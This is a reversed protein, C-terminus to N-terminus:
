LRPSSVILFHAGRGLHFRGPLSRPSCLRVSEPTEQSLSRGIISLSTGVQADHTLAAWGLLAFRFLLFENTRRSHSPGSPSTYAMASSHLFGRTGNRTRSIATLMTAPIRLGCSSYESVKQTSELRTARTRMSPIATHHQMRPSPYEHPGRLSVPNTRISQTRM